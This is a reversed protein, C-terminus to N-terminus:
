QAATYVDYLSIKHFWQLSKTKKFMCDDLRAKFSNVNEANIIEDPMKNLDNMIINVNFMVVINSLRAM